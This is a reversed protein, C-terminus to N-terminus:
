EIYGLDRLHEEIEATAEVSEGPARGQASLLARLRAITTPDEIPAAETRGPGLVFAREYGDGPSSLLKADGVVVSAKDHGYAVAGALIPREAADAVATAVLSRGDLGDPPEAGALDLLTPALDVLSVNDDVVEAPMGPGHLVLPVLLHIQFLNHGHGVGVIDRPDAFDRVEETRHEWMEEGHDSSVVLITRERIDEELGRWMGAVADDVTRVAADYLRERDERYRAFAASSVDDDARQYRWRRASRYSSVGFRDRVGKPAELPDHTDGLHLWCLFPRDQERMWSAATAALKPASREMVATEGFRGPVSLQANWVGLFAASVYGRRGLLDPLTPIEEPLVTPLNERSLNKPDGPVIGGGHNHPYLGTLFSAVSPCTWSSAAHASVCHLSRDLLSDLFPTTPRPHGYASVRDRRLCDVTVLLINPSRGASVM